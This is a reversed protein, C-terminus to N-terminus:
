QLCIILKVFEQAAHTKICAVPLQVCGAKGREIQQTAGREGRQDICADARHVCAEDDSVELAAGGSIHPGVVQLSTPVSIGTVRQQTTGLPGGTRTGRM